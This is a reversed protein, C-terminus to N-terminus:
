KKREPQVFFGDKKAYESGFRKMKRALKKEKAHGGGWKCVSTAAKQNLVTQNNSDDGSIDWGKKRKKTTDSFKSKVGNDTFEVKSAPVTINEAVCLPCRVSLMLEPIKDPKKSMCKDCMLVPVGCTYCKKKGVYRDWPVGCVCCKSPNNGDKNSESKKAKSKRIVGGCGDKELASVAERKDFVFNSGRWFGGDPYSKLYREIGGQLQFVGDVENGMERKLYASARECRIGGTCYMLVTKNELKKKTEPRSLWSTFDTSKRMKPDIYEAGGGKTSENTKTDKTKQQARQGDFRGLICEYHNRVDIVVTNDKQLMKHYEIADLHVGGEMCSADEDRIGYYVLEQVPVIKLEKFHRDASLNDIFKFDTKSTFVDPDFNKLDQAVHRLIECARAGNEYPMDVASLTANVGEQAVRIRGGLNREKAISSLYTMLLKVQNQTWKKKNTYQYFLLLSSQPKKDTKIIKDKESKHSLLKGTNTYSIASKVLLANPFWAGLKKEGGGGGEDNEISQAQSGTRDKSNVIESSPITPVDIPKYSKMYEIETAKEEDEKERKEHQCTDSTDDGVDADTSTITPKEHNVKQKKKLAKRERKSLRKKRLIKSSSDTDNNEAGVELTPEEM